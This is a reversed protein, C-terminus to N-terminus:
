ALQHEPAAAILALMGIVVADTVRGGAAHAVRTLPAIREERAEGLTRLLLHRAVREPDRSAGPDARELDALLHSPDFREPGGGVAVGGAGMRREMAAGGGRGGAGVPARGTLLYVLTNQRVFLTSTNIWSRGGAWGAVSPPSFLDQGMRRMADVLINPDRTPTRLTRVAGVVLEVPSKIQAGVNAPDYFHESLFLRRLAPRLRYESARLTAGLQQVVRGHPGALRRHDPLADHNVFFRHLKWAIFDACANQKLIADVFGDADLLGTVGLIRKRGGDHREARFVFDNHEFTYGTLARAGDRIDQETYAGEGLSFLEMLERALNENPRRANSNQNDLYALMAPDRVIARLLTAFSGLANARFLRNQMLMHHSNEIKRYGTAFHSHWFLTMKEELPRPSEILRALWWRQMARLQARDRRQREQQALRFRALTDEDAARRARRIAERDEPSLPAMIDPDFGDDDARAHPPADATLLADVAREPGMDALARIQEPTGGFGARLILHRAQEYGFDRHNIARLSATADTRARAAQL